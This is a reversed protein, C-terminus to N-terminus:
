IQEVFPRPLFLATSSELVGSILQLGSEALVADVCLQGLDDGTGSNGAELDLEGRPDLDVPNRAEGVVDGVREGCRINAQQHRNWSARRDADLHGVALPAQDGESVHEPARLCGGRGVRQGDSQTDVDGAPGLHEVQGLKGM